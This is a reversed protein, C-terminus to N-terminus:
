SLVLDDDGDELNSALLHVLRPIRHPIRDSERQIPRRPLPQQNILLARAVRVIQVADHRRKSPPASGTALSSEPPPPLRHSLTRSPKSPIRSPAFSAASAISLATD